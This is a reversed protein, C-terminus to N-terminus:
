SQAGAGDPESAPVATRVYRRVERVTIYLRGTGELRGWTPGVRRRRWDRVTRPPTAILACFQEFTLLDSDAWEPPVHIPNM